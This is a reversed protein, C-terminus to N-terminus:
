KGLKEHLGDLMEREVTKRDLLPRLGPVDDRDYPKVVWGRRLARATNRGRHRFFAARRASRKAKEDV